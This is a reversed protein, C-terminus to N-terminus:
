IQASALFMTPRFSPAWFPRSTCSRSVRRAQAARRDHARRHRRLGGNRRHAAHHRRRFRHSQYNIQINPHMKHYEDFWKSYIPFPFTAGAGNLNVPAQTWAIGSALVVLVAVAVLNRVKM